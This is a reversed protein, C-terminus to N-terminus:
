SLDGDKGQFKGLTMAFLPLLNTQIWEWPKDSKNIEIVKLVEEYNSWTLKEAYIELLDAKDTATLDDFAMFVKSAFGSFSISKPGSKDPLKLQNALQAPIFQDEGNIYCKILNQLYQRITSQSSFSIDDCFWPRLVVSHVAAPFVMHVHFKEAVKIKPSLQWLCWNIFPSLLKTNWKSKQSSSSIVVMDTLYEGDSFVQEALSNVKVTHESGSNLKLEIAEAQITPSTNTEITGMQVAGVLTKGILKSKLNQDLLSAAKTFQNLNAFLRLPAKSQQVEKQHYKNILKILDATAPQEVWEKVAQTFIKHKVLPLLKVPEQEVLSFDDEHKTAIGLQKLIAIQPNALYNALMDASIQELKTSVIKSAQQQNLQHNNFQSQYIEKTKRQLQSQPKPINAANLQTQNLLYDSYSFNVLWDSQELNLEDFCVDESSKLPIQNVPYDTFPLQSFDVCSDCYSRLTEFVPSPQIEEGKVLDTGVYSLYLKERTCMLTELFLYQNNEIVNIDGIRRSRNTLDLTEQNLQGPFSKEDMGLVYTLKFPIPRMPQLAACVIGGSLYSGKNAPIEQLQHQVFLKIDHSNLRLDPQNIALKQLGQQLAMQVMQEKSHEDPVTIFLDLMDNILREWQGTSQETKLRSKYAHLSEVIVSLQGIKEANLFTAAEAGEGEFVLSMRLTKLGKQWTFLRSQDEEEIEYLTDFGCYIGLKDVAQLWNEWDNQDFQNAAQVCPNDLWEFLSSRIFDDELVKFLGKVAAAYKSEVEANSDVIAYNLQLQNQQNLSEFIQELVFRYRNMDTVLVAIQNLKLEPKHKINWLISNYTAEVERVISPAVAFQLSGLQNTKIVAEPKPTRNIIHSQINQLVSRQEHSNEVWHDNFAISFHMADNEMESFLKLTERGPKGWAQLLENENPNILLESFLETKSFKEQSDNDTLVHGNDDTSEVKLYSMKTLHSQYWDQEGRTQMDEWYEMCVNLQYVNVQMHEALQLLIQRHLQSIRSPTFVHIEGQTKKTSHLQLRNAMQLLTSQQQDTEVVHLYFKQQLAELQSLYLDKSHKFVLQNAQWSRVMEPRQSEYDLLLVALKQSLQFQKRATLEDSDSTNLYNSIPRYVDDHSNIKKFFAWIKWSLNTGNLHVHKLKIINNALQFLGTELFPFEVQACAGKQQAVHLQLYRQMNSNPVLVNVPIFLGSHTQQTIIKDSLLDALREVSHSFYLNIGQSSSSSM